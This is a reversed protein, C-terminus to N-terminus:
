QKNRKCAKKKGAVTCHKETTEKGILKGDDSHNKTVGTSVKLKNFIRFKYQQRANPDEDQRLEAEVRVAKLLYKM